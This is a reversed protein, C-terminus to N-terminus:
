TTEGERTSSPNRTDGVGDVRESVQDTAAEQKDLASSGGPWRPCRLVWTPKERLSTSSLAKHVKKGPERADGDGLLGLDSRCFLLDLM